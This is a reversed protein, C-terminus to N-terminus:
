EAATVKEGRTLAERTKFHVKEAGGKVTTWPGAFEEARSLAQLPAKDRAPLEVERVGATLKELVKLAEEFAAQIGADLDDYYPTGQLKGLRLGATKKSLAARYDADTQDLLSAPDRDDAGAIARLVLAADAVSRALPGVHDLSWILPIIGRNSVQGYTPKLGV